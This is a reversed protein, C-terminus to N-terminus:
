ECFVSNAVVMEWFQAASSFCSLIRVVRGPAVSRKASIGIVHFGFFKACANFTKEVNRVLHPRSRDHTCFRNPPATVARQNGIVQFCATNLNHVNEIGFLSLRM